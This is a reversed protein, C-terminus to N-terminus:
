KSQPLQQLQRDIEDCAVRVGDESRVIQGLRAATAAYSPNELITRLEKVVRDATYKNRYITRSTGLREVRAANDPQDHSYPMILTPRGSRLGQATTGIGGQHVIASAQPFIQSYPAYDFAVIGDPLNELPPNKGILLVARRNLQKAAAISEEFFRGPAMVAASGLTFVIPPEGAKLFRDLDPHLGIETNGDYCTFGTQVASPPWDPQPSAIVASFMVLVLYPSYKSEIIPNGVPPLGLEARLEHLPQGWSNTVLKALNVVARDFPLGLFRLKALWPYPALVSPDHASFLSAPALVCLCWRIDLIEAVIRAAYILEGAIILDAGKAIELLDTYTDRINAFIWDRIIRETGKRLDMMLAITEKDDPEIGQPRIPYFEFGLPEVMSRYYEVSALVVEHGRERLSVGLAIIPHLDGLSGITTLVIRSM